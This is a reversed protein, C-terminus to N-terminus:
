RKCPFLKILADKIGDSTKMNNNESHATIWQVVKPTLVQVDDVDKAQPCWEKKAGTNGMLMVFSVEAVKNICGESNTKCYALFAGTQSPVDDAAVAFSGFSVSTLAILIFKSLM